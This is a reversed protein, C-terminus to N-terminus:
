EHTEIIGDSKIIIQAPTKSMIRELWVEMKPQYKIYLEVLSMMLLKSDKKIADVLLPDDYVYDKENYQITVPYLNHAIENRIELLGYLKGINKINCKQALKRLEKTRSNLDVNKYKEQNEFYGELTTAHILSLLHITVTEYYVFKPLYSKLDIKNFDNVYFKTQLKDSHRLKGDSEISANIISFDHTDFDLLKGSGHTFLISKGKPIQLTKALKARMIGLMIVLVVLKRRM